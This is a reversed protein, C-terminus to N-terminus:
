NLTSGHVGLSELGDPMVLSECSQIDLFANCTSEGKGMVTDVLEIACQLKKMNKRIMDTASCGDPLNLGHSESPDGEEKESSHLAKKEAMAFDKHGQEKSSSCCFIVM